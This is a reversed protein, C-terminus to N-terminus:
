GNPGKWHRRIPNENIAKGVVKKARSRKWDLSERLRRFQAWELETTELPQLAYGEPRLWLGYARHTEPMEVFSDTEEDYYHSAYSYGTQQLAANEWIGSQGSKTDIICLKDDIAHLKAALDLRGAFGVEEDWVITEIMVPEVEFEKLFRVYQKLYPMNDKPVAGRPKEGAMIARVIMETSAHVETGKDAKKKSDRSHATKILRVAKAKDTAVIQNVKELNDVVFFAAMKAAWPTLADKPYMNLIASVGPNRRKSGDHEYWREDDIWVHRM